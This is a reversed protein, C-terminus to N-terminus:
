MSCSAIDSVRTNGGDLSTTWRHDLHFKDRSATLKSTLMGHSTVFICARSMISCPSQRTRQTKKKKKKKKHIIIETTFYVSTVHIAFLALLFM